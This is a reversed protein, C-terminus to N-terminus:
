VEKRLILPLCFGGFVLIRILVLSRLSLIVSSRSFPSKTITGPIRYHSLIVSIAATHINTIIASAIAAHSECPHRDLYIKFFILKVFARLNPYFVQKELLPNIGWFASDAFFLFLM